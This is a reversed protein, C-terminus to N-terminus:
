KAGSTAISAKPTGATAKPCRVSTSGDVLGTASEGASLEFTVVSMAKPATGFPSADGAEVTPAGVGFAFLAM